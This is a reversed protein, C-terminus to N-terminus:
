FVSVHVCVCVYVRCQRVEFTHCSEPTPSSSYLILSFQNGTAKTGMGEGGGMKM